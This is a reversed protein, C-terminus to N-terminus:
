NLMSHRDYINRRQEQVTGKWKKQEKQVMNLLSRQRASMDATPTAGVTPSTSAEPRVGSMDEEENTHQQYSTPRRQILPDLCILFLMYIFLLSVVCIIFIVVVKITTTNRTETRCLCRACPQHPAVPTVVHECDCLESRTTNTFVARTKKGTADWTKDCVCKCRTDEFSAAECCSLACYLFTLGLLVQILVAISAM